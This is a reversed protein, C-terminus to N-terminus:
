SSPLINGVFQCDDLTYDVEDDNIRSLVIWGLKEDVYDKLEVEEM